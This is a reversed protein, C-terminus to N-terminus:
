KTENQGSDGSAWQRARTGIGIAVRQGGLEATLVSEGVYSIQLPESV